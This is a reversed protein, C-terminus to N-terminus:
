AIIPASSNWRATEDIQYEGPPIRGTRVDVSLEEACWFAMAHAILTFAGRAADRMPLRPGFRDLQHVYYQVVSQVKAFDEPKFTRFRISGDPSEPPLPLEEAQTEHEFATEAARLLADNGENLCCKAAGTKDVAYTMPLLHGLKIWEFLFVAPIRPAATLIGATVRWVPDDIDDGDYVFDAKMQM